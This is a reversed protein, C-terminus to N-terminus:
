KDYNNKFFRGLRHILVTGVVTSIVLLASFVVTITMILAASSPKTPDFADVFIMIVNITGVLAAIISYVLRNIRARNKYSRRSILGGFFNVRHIILLWEYINLSCAVYFFVVSLYYFIRLAFVPLQSDHVLGMVHILILSCTVLRCLLSAQLFCFNSLNALGAQKEEETIRTCYLQRESREKKIEAFVSLLILMLVLYSLTAVALICIM